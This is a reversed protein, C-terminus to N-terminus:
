GKILDSSTNIRYCNILLRDLVILGIIFWYEMWHYDPLIAILM